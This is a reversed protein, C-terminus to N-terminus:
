SKEELVAFLADKLELRKKKLEEAHADSIGDAGEGFRHLEKSIEEYEDFLRKFHADSAKLDHIADKYEPFEEALNHTHPM